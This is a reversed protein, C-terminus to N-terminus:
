FYVTLGLTAAIFDGTGDEIIWEEDEWDAYLLDGFIGFSENVAFTATLRAEMTDTKIDSLGDVGNFDYNWNGSGVLVSIAQPDIGGWVIPDYAGENMTYNFSGTLNFQESPKLNLSVM